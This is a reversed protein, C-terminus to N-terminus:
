IMGLFSLVMLALSSLAFILTLISVTSAAKSDSHNAQMDASKEQLESLSKELKDLREMIKNDSESIATNIHEATGNMIDVGLKANNDDHYAKMDEVLQKSTDSLASQLLQTQKQQEAQVNRYIRVGVDHVSQGSTDMADIKAMIDASSKKMEEIEKQYQRIQMTMRESEAKEAATNAKIMEQASLKQALKDMINDM